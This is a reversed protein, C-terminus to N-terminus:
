VLARALHEWEEDLTGDFPAVRGQRYWYRANSLDGEVRHLYAHIRAGTSDDIDQAVLHAANWDGKKALWLARLPPSLGRPPAGKALSAVLEDYTM